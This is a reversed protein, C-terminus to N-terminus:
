KSKRDLMRLMIELLAQERKEKDKEKYDMIVTIKGMSMREKIQKKIKHKQVLM